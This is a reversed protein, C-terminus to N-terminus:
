RTAAFKVKIVGYDVLNNVIAYLTLEVVSLEPAFQPTDLARRLKRMINCRHTVVTSEAIHLEWAVEKTSMCREVFLRILECERPTFAVKM